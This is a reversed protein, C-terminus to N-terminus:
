SKRRRLTPAILGLLGSAFLWAAAPIPAILPDTTANQDTLNPDLPSPNAIASSTSGFSFFTSQRIRGNPANPARDIQVTGFGFGGNDHTIPAGGSTLRWDFVIREFVDLGPLTLIFGDLANVGSDLPSPIPPADIYNGDNNPDLDISSLPTGGIWRVFTNTHTAISWDNSNIKGPFPGALPAPSFSGFLGGTTLGPTSTNLSIEFGDAAVDTWNLVEFQIKIGGGTLPSSATKIFCSVPPPGVVTPPVVPPDAWAISGALLASSLLIAQTSKLIFM